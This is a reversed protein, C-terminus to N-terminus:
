ILNMRNQLWFAIVTYFYVTQPNKLFFSVECENKEAQLLSEGYKGATIDPHKLLVPQYHWTNNAM